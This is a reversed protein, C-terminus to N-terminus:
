EQRAKQVERVVEELPKESLQRYPQEPHKLLPKLQGGDTQFAGGNFIQYHGPEKGFPKLFLLYQAGPKIESFNYDVPPAIDRLVGRVIPNAPKSRAIEPITQAIADSSFGIMALIALRIANGSM